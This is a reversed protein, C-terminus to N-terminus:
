AAYAGHEGLYQCFGSFSCLFAVVIGAFGLYFSGKGTAHVDLFEYIQSVPGANKYPRLLNRVGGVLLLLTFAALPLMTACVFLLGPHDNFPGM